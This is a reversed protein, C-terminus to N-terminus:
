LGRAVRDSEAAILRNGILRKVNEDNESALSSQLFKITKPWTNTNMLIRNFVALSMTIEKTKSKRTQGESM